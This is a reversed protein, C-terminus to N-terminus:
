LEKRQLIISFPVAVDHKEAAKLAKRRSAFPSGPLNCRPTNIHEHHEIVLYGKKEKAM